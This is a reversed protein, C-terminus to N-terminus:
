EEALSFYKKLFRLVEQPYDQSVLGLSSLLYHQDIAYKKVHRPTLKGEPLDELLTSFGKGTPFGYILAGGTGIVTAVASLDRGYIAYVNRHGTHVPTKTGSHRLLARQCARRAYLALDQAIDEPNYIELHEGPNLLNQVNHFVGLDGEVSRKIPPEITLFIHDEREDEGTYSHVDTTAGGVDFIVVGGTVKGLLEAVFSVALPTPLAPTTDRQIKELGPAKIVDTEFTERVINQIERFRFHDVRPYVNSSLIVRKNYKEFISSIDDRICQNGAFIVVADNKLRALTEANRLIVEEEGYDLGGCLLIINPNLMALHAAKKESISGSISELVIGGAGLASELAAKTTLNHTLGCVAMRLGGAASSSLYIKHFQSVGYDASLQSLLSTYALSVDGEQLTTRASRRGEFHLSGNELAFLVLKTFTSGVELALLHHKEPM